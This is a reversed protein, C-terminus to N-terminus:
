KKRVVVRKGSAKVTYAVTKHTWPNTAYVQAGGAINTVKIITANTKIGARRVAKRLAAVKVTRGHASKRAAAAGETAAAKVDDALYRYAIAKKLDASSVTASGAPLPQHQAGYTYTVVIKVGDDVVFAANLVGDASADLTIAAGDDDQYTYGTSGDDHLTKTGAHDTDETLVTAPDPGNEAVYRQMSTTKSPTFVYRVLPRNMVKVAARSAADTLYAFTGTSDVVYHANVSSGVRFHDYAIGGARDVVFGGTGSIDGSLTETAKWGDSGAATSAAAVEKLAAAMEAAALATTTGTAFAAGPVALLGATVTTAVALVALRPRVSM